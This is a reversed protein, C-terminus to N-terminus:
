KKGDNIIQIPMSLGHAFPETFVYTHESPQIQATTHIIFKSPNGATLEHSVYANGIQDLVKNLVENVAMGVTLNYRATKADVHYTDMYSKVQIGDLAFPYDFKEKDVPSVGSDIVSWDISKPTTSNKAPSVQTHSATPPLPQSISASLAVSSVSLPASSATDASPTSTPSKQCAVMLVSIGIIAGIKMFAKDAPKTQQKM